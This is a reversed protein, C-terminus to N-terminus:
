NHNRLRGIEEDKNKLEEKSEDKEWKEESTKGQKLKQVEKILSLPILGEVQPKHVWSKGLEM